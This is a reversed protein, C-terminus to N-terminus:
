LANIPIKLYSVGNTEPPPLEGARMNVQVSPLLLAPMDLKKDRETRLHVFEDETIGERVHVNQRRQAEVTTEWAYTDRQPAKYDHCLFMRTAEPLRLIKGISRYLERADGGPFDCRATGYDPMFLTDGVFAADGIVYTVCAPTHGPTHMVRAPLDGIIFTDGDAFLHDFQSGDIHFGAGANFVRKFTAQVSTVHEGIATRGGLADKLYPGATLHDAHVHTELIWDVSLNNDRVFSVIQDASGTSTRGAHPDYDLVPDIIACHAGGVEAVVYSATNTTQDFFTTVGAQMHGEKLNTMTERKLAKVCIHM